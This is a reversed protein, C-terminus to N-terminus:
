RGPQNRRAAALSPKRFARWVPAVFSPPVLVPTGRRDWNVTSPLDARWEEISDQVLKPNVLLFEILKTLGTLRKSHPTGGGVGFRTLGSNAMRTRGSHLTNEVKQLRSKAGRNCCKLLLGRREARGWVV